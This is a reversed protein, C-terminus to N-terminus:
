IKIGVKPADELNSFTEIKNAEEASIENYLGNRWQLFIKGKRGTRRSKEIQCHVIPSFTEYYTMDGLKVELPTKLRKRHLLLVVDAEQQLFSSDRLDNMTPERDQPVKSLHAVLFISVGTEHAIQRLQRLKDGIFLSTSKTSTLEKGSLLYHMHDIFVHEVGFKINAYRIAQKLTQFNITEVKEPFYIPYNSVKHLKGEKDWKAEPDNQVFPVLFNELSIELTYWLSAIGQKALNMTISQCLTSKGVGSEATVVVLEGSCVGNIVKDLQDFGISRGKHKKSEEIIRPSSSYDIFIPKNEMNEIEKEGEITDLLLVREEPSLLEEM